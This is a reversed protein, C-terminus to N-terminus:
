EVDMKEHKFVVNEEVVEIDFTKYSKIGTTGRKFSYDGKREGKQAAIEYGHMKKHYNKKIVVLDVNSGSGLDNYIGSAVADRVLKIAESETMDPKWRSEFVTMAALSGSGLSEYPVRDSSGYGHVSHIHPGDNDVGGFVLYSSIKGQYPYLYQKAFHVAAKVPVFKRNTNQRILEMNASVYSASKHM